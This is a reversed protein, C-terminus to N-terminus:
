ILNKCISYLTAFPVGAMTWTLMAEALFRAAFAPDEAPRCVPALLDALQDRLMGHRVPGASAYVKEAAADTFLAAHVDAFQRLATYVRELFARKDAVDCAALEALVRRWDDVMFAAILADKSAFYNYVTGVAIGCAAAVSRVTTKGYGQCAIQRRAEALLQEKVNEIRKPM